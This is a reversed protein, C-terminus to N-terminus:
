PAALPTTPTMMRVEAYRCSAPWQLFTPDKELVQKMRGYDYLGSTLALTKPPNLAKKRIMRRLLRRLSLIAM